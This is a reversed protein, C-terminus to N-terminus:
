LLTLPLLSEDEGNDSPPPPPTVFLAALHAACILLPM